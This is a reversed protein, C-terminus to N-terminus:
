KKIVFNGLILLDLGCCNFTRIADEVTCVIPEGNLNFSTNLLVPVGTLQYFENILNYFKPNIKKSVTHVRASNDVHTVAPIKNVWDEKVYTIKEM